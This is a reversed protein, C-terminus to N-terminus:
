LQRRWWRAVATAAIMTATATVAVHERGYRGDSIKGGSLEDCEDTLSCDEVPVGGHYQWRRQRRELTVASIASSSTVATIASSHGQRSQLHQRVSNMMARAELVGTAAVAADVRLAVARVLLIMIAAAAMIALGNDGIDDDGGSGGNGGGKSGGESGGECGECTFPVLM